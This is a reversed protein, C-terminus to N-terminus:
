NPVAGSRTGRYFVDVDGVKVTRHAVKTSRAM